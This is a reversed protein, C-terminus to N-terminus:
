ALETKHGILKSDMLVVAMAAFTVPQVPDVNQLTELVVVVIIHVQHAYHQYGKGQNRVFIVLHVLSVMHQVLKAINDQNVRSANHM